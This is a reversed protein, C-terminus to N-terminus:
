FIIAKYVESERNSFFRSVGRYIGLDDEVEVFTSGVENHAVFSSSSNSQKDVESPYLSEV